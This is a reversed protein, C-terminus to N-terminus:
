DNYMKEFFNPDKVKIAISVTKKAVSELRKKVNQSVKGPIGM